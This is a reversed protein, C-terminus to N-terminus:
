RGQLLQDFSITPPPVLATTVAEPTDDYTLFSHSLYYAKGKMSPIIVTAYDGNSAQVFGHLMLPKKVTISSSTQFNTTIIEFRVPTGFPLSKM